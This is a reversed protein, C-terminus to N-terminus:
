LLGGVVRSKAILAKSEQLAAEYVLLMHSPM